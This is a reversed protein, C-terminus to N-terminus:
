ASHLTSSFSFWRCQFSVVLVGLTQQRKEVQGNRDILRHPASHSNGLIDSNIGLPLFM